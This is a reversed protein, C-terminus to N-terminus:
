SSRPGPSPRLANTPAAVSNTPINALEKKLSEIQAQQERLLREFNERM